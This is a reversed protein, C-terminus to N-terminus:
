LNKIQSVIDKIFESYGYGSFHYNEKGFPFLDEVSLNLFNKSPYIFVLNDSQIDMYNKSIEKCTKINPIYGKSNNFEYYSPICVLYVKGDKNEFEQAFRLLTEKYISLGELTRKKYTFPIYLGYYINELKFPNLFVKNSKKYAKRKKTYELLYNQLYEDKKQNVKPSILNQSYNKFNLYKTLIKNENELVIDSFDNRPFHFIFLNDSSKLFPKIYENYIAYQTILSTDAQGFSFIQSANFNETLLSEFTYKEDVCAGQTFSDGLLWNINDQSSVKNKKNLRNNLYSIDLIKSRFGYNNSYYKIMKGNENCYVTYVNSIDSLPLLEKIKKDKSILYGNPITPYAKIKSRSYIDEIVQFGNRKDFSTIKEKISRESNNFKLNEFFKGLSIFTEFVLFNISFTLFLIPMSILKWIRLNLILLLLILVITIIFKVLRSGHLSYIPPSFIFSFLFCLCITISFISIYFYFKDKKM